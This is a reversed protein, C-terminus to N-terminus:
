FPRTRGARWRSRCPRALISPHWRRQRRFRARCPSRVPRRSSCPFRSGCTSRQVSMGRGSVHGHTSAWPPRDHDALFPCWMSSISAAAGCGRDAGPSRFLAAAVLGPVACIFIALVKLFAAFVDSKDCEGSTILVTSSAAGSECRASTSCRREGRPARPAARGRYM